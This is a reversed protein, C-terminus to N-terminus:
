RNFWVNTLQRTGSFVAWIGPARQRLELNDVRGFRKYNGCLDVVWGIKDKCPRIARGVMQYYLALSMTPRALVVTDLEAFDFGTTLVGVNAVVNIRGAKFSQLVSERVNAATEGTVVAARHGLVRALHEAEDTFRTFVLISKRGANLLRNVVSTLEDSFKVEAYHRRVSVDTYDAGRSNVELRACNVIPVEYYNLDALFGQDLLTRVQVHYLLRDFIRPQTRTIFRLMSGYFRNSYLRYPTATLGLVKCRTADIFEKYMGAEANVLHCEDIIVYRFRRFYDKHSKVSGITAFTVKRVDKSNFSASFIGADLVGYSLLKHYNQELIEKSPQFILVPADLRYAINAIVLSKGAGTPLVILGNGQMPSDFFSVAADVAERQYPRLEYM